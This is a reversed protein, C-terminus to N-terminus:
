LMQKGHLLDLTRTGEDARSFGREPPTKQQMRSRAPRHPFRSRSTGLDVDRWRVALAEGIRLGAGALIAVLVQGVRNPANDLFAMLQEPEVWPRAPKTAKLRRRRGTAPNSPILEYEVATELTQAVHRLTHNISGNSLGREAFREGKAKAATRREQIAQREKAKKVKYRDIERATIEYLMHGPFFSLLHNSLSWKLDGLTKAALGEAERAAFWESANYTAQAYAGFYPGFM